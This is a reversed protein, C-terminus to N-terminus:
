TASRKPGVPTFWQDSEPWRLVRDMILPPTLLIPERVIGEQPAGAGGALGAAPAAAAPGGGGGAGQGAPVVHGRGPGERVDAQGAGPGCGGLAGTGVSVTSCM